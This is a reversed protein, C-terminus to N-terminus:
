ANALGEKRQRQGFAVSALVAIALSLFIVSLSVTIPIHFGSAAAIM